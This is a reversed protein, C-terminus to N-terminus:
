EQFPVIASSVFRREECCQKKRGTGGFKVMDRCSKCKGCDAQQCVECVGCRKRRPASTEKGDIQNEFFIDFIHRVLPTTTAQFFDSEFNVDPRCAISPTFNWTNWNGKISCCGEKEQGTQSQSRKCCAQMFNFFNFLKCTIFFTIFSKVNTLLALLQSSTSNTSLVKAQVSTCTIRKLFNSKM